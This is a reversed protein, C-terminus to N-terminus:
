SGIGNSADTADASSASREDLSRERRVWRQEVARRRQRLIRSVARRQSLGDRIAAHYGALANPGEKAVSWLLERVIRFSTAAIYSRSGNKLVTRVRNKYCQLLVFHKGRRSATGHFAHYVTARPEYLASWGALRGRWGLDVDEFYMFYTRDFFGSTLRIEDLMARRYLAAGASVCFIEEARETPMVEDNYARDVFLGGPGILVGTSNIRSPSSKFLIRSQVMGLDDNGSRVANRLDAIWTPSATADNNLTAVWAGSAKTIGRNCGEAFGLNEHADIATVWPFDVRLMELSGDSSGNDVVITEFDRETQQELSKLCDRLYDKANWNVIVVSITPQNTM